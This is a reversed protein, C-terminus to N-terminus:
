DERIDNYPVIIGCEENKVINAMSTGDNVIIPKGCPMAEFLKNPSAYKNNPVNTDYLAFLLDAENTLRMIENHPLRGLFKINQKKDLIPILEDEGIGYGAIILKIDSIDKIANIM